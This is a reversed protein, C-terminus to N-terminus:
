GQKLEGEDIDTRGYGLVKRESELRRIESELQEKRRELRRIDEMLEEFQKRYSELVAKEEELRKVEERKREELRALRLLRAERVRFRRDLDNFAVEVKRSAEDLKRLYREELDRIQRELLAKREELEELRGYVERVEREKEELEARLRMTEEKLEELRRREEILKSREEELLDRAKMLDEVTDYQLKLYEVFRDQDAKYAELIGRIKTLSDLAELLREAVTETHAKFAAEMSEEIVQRTGESMARRVEVGISGLRASVSDVTQSLREIERSLDQKLAEMRSRLELLANVLEEQKRGGGLPSM